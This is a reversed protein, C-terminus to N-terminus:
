KGRESVRVMMDEQYVFWQNCLRVGEGGPRQVLEVDFRRVIQPVLKLMEMLSINKGICTRSGHGFELSYRDMKQRQEKECLLWREPRFLHADPGFVAKNAHAVWPNVGVVDGEKFFRGCLEAGGRPVVRWLPLGVAPHVRLGEQVVAQLYPLTQAQAFTIPDAIAGTRAAADLEARLKALADPNGALGGLVAALSISTTDSGAAVNANITNIVDDWTFTTPDADHLALIKALFDDGGQVREKGKGIEERRKRIQAESFATIVFRGHSRFRKLFRLLPAHVGPYVGVPAAYAFLSRTLAILGLADEGADLMGFRKNLTILGITDLAYCQMWRQLNVPEAHRAMERLRAHMVRVTADVAEEMKLLMSMSYLSAVKRRNLRHLEPDRGSFIDDTHADPDGSAVYWPAKVFRTGHGYITRIAAPDDISFWNPAVRVIRGHRAHLAINTTHFDARLIQALYWLRSFRALLPGPVSRQPSLLAFLTARLLTLAIIALIALALTQPRLADSPLLSLLAM